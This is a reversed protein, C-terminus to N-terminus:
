AAIQRLLDLPMQRALRPAVHPVRHRLRARPRRLRRKRSGGDTREVRHQGRQLDGLAVDGLRAGGGFFYALVRLLIGVPEHLVRLRAGDFADRGRLGFGHGDLLEFVREVGVAVRAQERAHIAVPDLLDERFRPPHRGISGCSVDFRTSGPFIWHARVNFRDLLRRRTPSGIKSMRSLVGPVPLRMAMATLVLVLVLVAMVEVGVGAM